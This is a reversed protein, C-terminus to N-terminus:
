RGAAKKMKVHAALAWANLSEAYERILQSQKSGAALAKDQAQAAAKMKANASAAWKDLEVAYDRLLKSLKAGVASRKSDLEAARLM